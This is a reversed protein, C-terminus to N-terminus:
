NEKEESQYKLNYEEEKQHVADTIRCQHSTL